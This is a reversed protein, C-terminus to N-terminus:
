QKKIIHDTIFQREQNSLSLKWVSITGAILTFLGTLIFRFKHPPIHNIAFYGAIIMLTIPFFTKGFVNKSYTTVNLETTKALYIIRALSSIAEFIIYFSLCFEINKGQKLCLWVVPVTLLKITYILLSYGKINGIAQNATGLGITFQDTLASILMLRCLFTTYAPVDDLWLQLVNPMEWCLPIIFTALLLTSYKSAAEALLFMRKRNNAGEAKIIQPSIADLLAYSITIISSFVQTAIGYAANITTGYIRNLIISIGQARFMICVSGYSTWTAFGVLQKIIQKDWNRPSPIISSEEYYKKCYIALATYHFMTISAMIAAYLPLRNADFLYLLFVLSLKLVGDAIDIISLYVINERATLVAKYPISVFTTLIAVIMLLYVYIAEDTKSPMINLFGSKFICDTFLVMITAFSLGILWQLTNSNSFIKKAEEINRNGICYAIHRLTTITLSNSLFSLMSTIGAILMYIGYDTKGLADLAIRTSYLSLFLNIVMRIDRSLMNIILRTTNTM